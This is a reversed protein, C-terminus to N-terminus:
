LAPRFGGPVTTSCDHGLFPLRLGHDGGHQDIQLGLIIAPRNM